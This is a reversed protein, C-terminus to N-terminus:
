IQHTVAQHRKTAVTCANDGQIRNGKANSQGCPLIKNHRIGTKTINHFLYKTVM